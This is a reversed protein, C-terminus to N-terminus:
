KLIFLGTNDHNYDRHPLMDDTAKRNSKYKTGAHPKIFIQDINESWSLNKIFPIPDGFSSLTTKVDLEPLLSSVIYNIKESLFDERIRGLQGWAVINNYTTDTIAVGRDFNLYYKMAFEEFTVAFDEMNNTYNYDDNSIDNKFEPVIDPAQLDKLKKSIQEGKFRVKAVDKLLESQLPFDKKIKDSLKPYKYNIIYGETPFDKPKSIFDNAHALEHALVYFAINRMDDKTRKHKPYLYEGKQYYTRPINFQLDKGYDTRYDEKPIISQEESKNVYIYLPDIYIAGTDFWYFAPKLDRTIIIATIPKFLQLFSSPMSEIVYRFNPIMWEDSVILREMIEDVTIVDYDQGILPLEQLTPYTRKFPAYYLRKLAATYRNDITATFIPVNGSYYKSINENTPPKSFNSVTTLESDNDDKHCATLTFMCVLFLSLPLNRM